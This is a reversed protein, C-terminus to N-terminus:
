QIGETEYNEKGTISLVFVPESGDSPILELIQAENEDEDELTGLSTAEEVADGAVIVSALVQPIMKMDLDHIHDSVLRSIGAFLEKAPGDDESFGEMFSCLEEPDEAERDAYASM